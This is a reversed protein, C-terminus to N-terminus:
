PHLNAVVRVHIAVNNQIMSETKKQAGPRSQATKSWPQSVLTRAPTPLVHTTPTMLHLVLRMTQITLYVHEKKVTDSKVAPIM